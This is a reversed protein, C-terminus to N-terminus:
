PEDLSREGLVAIWEISEHEDALRREGAAPDSHARDTDKVHRVLLPGVLLHEAHREVIRRPARDGIDVVDRRLEAVLDLVEELDVLVELVRLPRLGAAEAVTGLRLFDDFRAAPAGALRRRTM